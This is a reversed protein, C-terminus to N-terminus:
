VRWTVRAAGKREELSSGTPAKKQANAQQAPALAHALLIAVTTAAVSYVTRKMTPISGLDHALIVGDNGPSTLTVPSASTYQVLAPFTRSLQADVVGNRM